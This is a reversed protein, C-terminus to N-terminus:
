AAEGRLEDEFVAIIRQRLDELSFFYFDIARLRRAIPHLGFQGEIWRSFDDSDDGPDRLRSEHFHFYLSSLSVDRLAALLEELTWAERESPLAMFHGSAFHFEFGPRAWPVMPAADLHEEILDAITSRASELDAEAFPDLAALKEALALDELSHAAWQAFDNPYDWAGFRHALATRHLHHHIVDLPVRRILDAMERLNAARLGTPMVLGEYDVFRFPEEARTRAPTGTM